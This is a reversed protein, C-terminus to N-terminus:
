TLGYRLAFLSTAVLLLAAMVYVTRPMTYPVAKRVDVGNAMRDALDHQFRRIEPSVHSAPEEQSFHLATSISDSLAARTDVLQAIQYPSPLRRLTRYLGYAIAGVPILVTWQWNLVETGTLLLLIFAFLAASAATAGQALLENYLFR